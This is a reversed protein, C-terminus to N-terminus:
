TVYMNPSGYLLIFSNTMKNKLPTQNRKVFWVFFFLVVPLESFLDCDSCQIQKEYMTALPKSLSVRVPDHLPQLSCVSYRKHNKEKVHKEAQIFSTSNLSLYRDILDTLSEADGKHVACCYNESFRVNDFNGQLFAIEKERVEDVSSKMITAQFGQDQGDPKGAVYSNFTLFDVPLTRVPLEIM